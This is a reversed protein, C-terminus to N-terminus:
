FMEIQARENEFCRPCLVGAPQTNRGPEIPPARLNHEFLTWMTREQAVSAAAAEHAALRARAYELEATLAEIKDELATSDDDSEEAGEEARALEQELAQIRAHAAALEDRYTM